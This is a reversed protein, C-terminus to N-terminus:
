FEVLAGRNDYHVFNEYLGLGGQEVIGLRQLARIVQYVVVPAVGQVAIDVAFMGERNPVHGYMHYSRRAGGVRQNFQPDRYASTIRVPVGLATRIPQLNGQVFEKLSEVLEDPVKVGSRSHFESLKFNKSLQLDDGPDLDAAFPVIPHNRQM